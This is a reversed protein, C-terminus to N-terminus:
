FFTLILHIARLRWLIICHKKKGLQMKLANIRDKISIRANCNSLEVTSYHEILERLENCDIKLSNGKINTKQQEQAAVIKAAQSHIFDHFGSKFKGFMTFQYCFGQVFATHKRVRKNTRISESLSIIYAKYGNLTELYRIFAPYIYLEHHSLIEKEEYQSFLKIFDSESMKSFTYHNSYSAPYHNHYKNFFSVNSVHFQQHLSHRSDFEIWPLTLVCAYYVFLTIIFFLKQTLTKQHM